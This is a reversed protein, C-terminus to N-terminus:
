RPLSAALGVWIIFAQPSLQPLHCWRIATGDQQESRPAPTRHSFEFAPTRLAAPPMFLSDTEHKKKKFLKIKMIPKTSHFTLNPSQPIGISYSKNPQLTSKTQNQNRYISTNQGLCNIPGMSQGSYNWKM